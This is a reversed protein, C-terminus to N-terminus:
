KPAAPAAAPVTTAPAAKHKAVKVALDDIRQYMCLYTMHWDGGGSLKKVDDLTCPSVVEDDYELWKDGKQRVWGVYHGADAFRGKHTVVGFLEYHGSTEGSVAVQAMDLEKPKNKEEDVDMATPKDKDAKEKEAQAAAAAAAAAAKEKEQAAKKAKDDGAKDKSNTDATKKKTLGLEIDKDSQLVTRHSTLATKLAPTCFPLVDLDDPYTVKKLIKAKKKTDNRWFFRVFQVVLFRPLSAIRSSKVYKATRGLSPSRRELPEDLDKLVGEQLYTTDQGIHCRLKRM